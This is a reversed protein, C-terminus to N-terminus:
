HFKSYLKVRHLIHKILLNKRLSFINDHSVNAVIDMIRWARVSRTKLLQWTIDRSYFGFKTSQLFEYLEFLQLINELDYRLLRFLIHPQSPVNFYHDNKTASRLLISAHLSDLSTITVAFTVIKLEVWAFQSRKYWKHGM